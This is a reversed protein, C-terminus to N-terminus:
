PVTVKLADAGVPPVTTVSELPLVETAVTGEVTVTDDPLVLALKVTLVCATLVVEVATIVAVSPDLEACAERVTVGAPATLREESVRFGVLTLPPLLEVPVTVRVALAGEPPTTTVSELPLVDTAVTGDLTVTDAPLVLALKVTRVWLTDDFVLTKIEPVYAPLVM